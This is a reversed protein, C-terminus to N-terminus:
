LAEAAALAEDAHGQRQGTRWRAAAGPVAIADHCKRTDFAGEATVSGIKQEPPIRDLLEPLMPGQGVDSTTFDTARIELTKADLGIHIKRRVKRKTGGRKRANWDGEGEVMIVTCDVLLQLPGDWSRYSINVKLTKQRRSLTSFIPVARDLGTLRLLSEVFGTAQRLTMGFLVKM